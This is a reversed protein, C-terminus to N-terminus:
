WYHYLRLGVAPPADIRYAATTEANAPDLSTMGRTLYDVSGDSWARHHGRYTTPNLITVFTPDVGHSGNMHFYAWGAYAGGVYLLVLNDAWVVGRRKGKRDAIRDKALITVGASGTEGVGAAYSYGTNWYPNGFTPNYELLLDVDRRRECVAIKPLNNVTMTGTVPAWNLYRGHDNLLREDMALPVPGAFAALEPPAPMVRHENLYMTSATVLQRLNSACVIDRAKTRAGILAPLLIAVLLGIIGIVVLLEILTFGRRDDHPRTNRTTM